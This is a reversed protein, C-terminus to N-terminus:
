RRGDLYEQLPELIKEPRRVLDEWTAYIIHWRTRALANARDTDRQFKARGSHCWYGRPELGLHPTVTLWAFDIRAIFEDGDWVEYQRVPMEIGARRLLREILTEFIGETPAANPDRLALLERLVGAGRRGHGGLIDLREKMRAFLQEDRRLASEMAAEVMAPDAVVAGLDIITRALGTVRLAGLWGADSPTLLKTRHLTIGQPVDTNRSRATTVEVLGHPDIGDLKWLAAASRHSVASEPGAWLTAAMLKQEWSPPAGRMRYVGPHLRQWEGSDLRRQIAGRGLGAELAQSRSLVGQQKAILRGLQAEKYSLADNEHKNM